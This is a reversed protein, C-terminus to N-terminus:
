CTPPEPLQQLMALMADAATQANRIFEHGHGDYSKDDLLIGAARSLETLIEHLPWPTDMGYWAPLQQAQWRGYAAASNAMECEVLHSNGRFLEEAAIRWQEVLEAPVSAPQKQTNNM